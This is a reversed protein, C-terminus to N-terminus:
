LLEPYQGSRLHKNTSPTRSLQRDLIAFRHYLTTWFARDDLAVQSWCVIVFLGTSRGINYKLGVQVNGLWCSTWHKVEGFDLKLSVLIRRSNMKGVEIRERSKDRIFRVDPKRM